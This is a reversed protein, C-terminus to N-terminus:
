DNRVTAISFSSSDNFYSQNWDVHKKGSLIGEINDKIQKWLERRAEIMMNDEVSNDKSKKNRDLHQKLLDLYRWMQRVAEKNKTVDSKEEAREKAYKERNEKEWDKAIRDAQEKTKASKVYSGCQIDYGVFTIKPKLQERMDILRSTTM